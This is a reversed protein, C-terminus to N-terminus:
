GKIESQQLQQIVSVNSFVGVHKKQTKIYKKMTVAVDKHGLQASLSVIGVLQNKDNAINTAFTHSLRYNSTM